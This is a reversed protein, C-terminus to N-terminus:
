SLRKKLDFTKLPVIIKNTVDGNSENSEELQQHKFKKLRKGSIHSTFSSSKACVGPRGAFFWQANIAVLKDIIGLVSRDPYRDKQSSSSVNVPLIHWSDSPLEDYPIRGNDASILTINLHQYLYQIAEHHENRLQKTQFSVSEPKAGTANLLHPYDTLLFVNPLPKRLKRPITEQNNTYQENELAHISDVLNEACPLLNPIPELREMRWHIAIYPFLQASINNAIDVWHQSFPLPVDADKENLIKYRRDYFLNIVDVPPPTSARDVIENSYSDTLLYEHERTEDSLLRMMVDTVNIKSQKHSDPFRYYVSPRGSFDFSNSFCNDVKELLLSRRSRQIYLEQATPVVDKMQRELLWAKFDEMTIYNFHKRNRDLWSQEYYFHFPHHLCSGLHSNYTNPLVITRDIKGALFALQRFHFQAKSEQETIAVPLLFRCRKNGCYKKDIEQRIKENATFLSNSINFSNGVATTGDIISASPRQPWRYSYKVFYPYRYPERSSFLKRDNDSTRQLFLVVYTLLSLLLVISFFYKKPIDDGLNYFLM